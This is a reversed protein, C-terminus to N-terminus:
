RSVDYRLVGDAYYVLITYTGGDHQSIVATVSKGDSSRLSVAYATLHHTNDRKSDTVVAKTSLAGLIMTGIGNSGINASIYQTGIRENNKENYVNAKASFRVQASASISLSVSILFLIITAFANKM